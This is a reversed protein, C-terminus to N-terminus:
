HFAHRCSFSKGVSIEDDSFSSERPLAPMATGFPLPSLLVTPRVSPLLPPRDSTSCVTLRGFPGEKRGGEREKKRSRGEKNESHLPPLRIQLPTARQHMSFSRRRQGTGCSRRPRRRVVRKYELTAAAREGRECGGLDKKRERRLSSIRRRRRLRRRPRPDRKKQDRPRLEHSSYNTGRGRREEGRREERHGSRREETAYCIVSVHGTAAPRPLFNTKPTTDGVWHVWGISRALSRALSRATRGDM